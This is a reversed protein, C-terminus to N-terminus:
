QSLGELHHFMAQMESVRELYMRAQHDGCRQGEQL